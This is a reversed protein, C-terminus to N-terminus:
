FSSLWKFGFKLHVSKPVHLHLKIGNMKTEHQLHNGHEFMYLTFFGKLFDEETFCIPQNDQLKTLLM